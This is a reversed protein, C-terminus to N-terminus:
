FGIRKKETETNELLKHVMDPQIVQAEAGYVDIQTAAKRLLRRVLRETDRVGSQDSLVDLTDERFTIPADVLNYDETCKPILYKALIVEREAKTYERFKIIEMRNRLAEPIQESYNATCIFMARSIDVPVELYRDIFSHNQEPDLIELLAATPDGKHRAIKDVEDLLFVPDMVKSEKLGVVFRGPRSAIYTRRHGRLESEDSLGGLAIRQLPRNSVRAISQAISTKGTGPPGVFCFIAGTAGGKRREICMHELLYDKVDDLGHHTKSLEDRLSRLEFDKRGTKGWPVDLVWNLYDTVMGYETSNKPVSELKDIERQIHSRHEDPIPTEAFREKIGPKNKNKKKNKAKSPRTRPRYKRRKKTKESVHKQMRTTLLQWREFNDQEQLYKLRSDTQKLLYNAVLDMKQILSTEDKIIRLQEEDFLLPNESMMDVLTKIERIIM